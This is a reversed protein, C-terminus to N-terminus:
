HLKLQVDKLRDLLYDDVLLERRSGLELVSGEELSLNRPICDVPHDM